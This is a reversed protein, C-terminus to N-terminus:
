HAYIAAWSSRLVEPSYYKELLSQNLSVDREQLINEQTILRNSFIQIGRKQFSRFATTDPYVYVTKGMALLSTTVGMAEQRKHNFIAIHMENLFNRYSKLDMFDVIPIFKDGFIKTGLDLVKRKYEPYNGYSLPCYVEIEQEKYAKLQTFIEEHENSPDASNGVLIKWTTGTKKQIPFEHVNITNSLYMPSYFFKAKSDFIENALESDGQIHTIHGYINKLTNKKIFNYFSKQANSEKTGLDMGGYIVWYTKKLAFRLLFFFYLVPNGHIIIKTAQRFHIYLQRLNQFFYKSHPSGLYGINVQNLLEAEKPKSICLFYQDVEKFEDNLFRIIPVTFKNPLLIHLIRTRSM